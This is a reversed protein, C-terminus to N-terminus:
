YEVSVFKHQLISNYYKDSVLLTYIGQPLSSTLIEKFTIDNIGQLLNKQVCVIKEGLQNYISITADYNLNSNISMISEDTIPNPWITIDSLPTVFNNIGTNVLVRVSDIVVNTLPKDAPNGSSGSTPVAGILQVINFGSIVTGFATYNKDLYLNDVLNIYFESTATNPGSNAMAITKQLNSFAPSLEDAIKTTAAGGSYFKGGQAMFSKIVRYFLVKDYFKANVLKLFNTTTIPRKAQELNVVFSGKNTYFGVQTQAFLYNSIFSCCVLLYLIYHKKM